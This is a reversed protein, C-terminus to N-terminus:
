GALELRQTRIHNEIKNRVAKLMQLSIVLETRAEHKGIPLSELQKVINDRVGNFADILLPNELLQQAEAAKQETNM